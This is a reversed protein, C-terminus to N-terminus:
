RIKEFVLADEGGTYYREWRKIMQYGAQEYLRVAARNSVRVSLRIIDMELAQEGAVLLAKAIGRRRYAPLVALTTVWGIKRSPQKEGGIFGVMHNDAVAKLRVMGPLTLMGILDWFPWTDEAKFCIKELHNLQTLDHWDASSIFWNAPKTPENAEFETV